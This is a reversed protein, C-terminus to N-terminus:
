LQSDNGDDGDSRTALARWVSLSISNSVIRVSGDAMAVNVIPGHHSRAAVAGYPLEIGYNICDGIASNPPLAHTYLTQHIGSYLWDNGVTNASGAVKAAHCVAVVTDGTKGEVGGYAYATGVFRESFMVTKSLGDGIVAPTVPYVPVIGRSAFVGNASDPFERTRHTAPGVGFCGRYSGGREASDDPCLMAALRLVRITGNAADDAPWSTAGDDTGLRGFNISDYLASEGLYSLVQAHISPAHIRYVLEGRSIGSGGSSPLDHSQLWGPYMTHADVYQNTAMALDRLKSRCSIGRAAGRAAQVAPGLLAVLMGVISVVVLVEIATFARRM